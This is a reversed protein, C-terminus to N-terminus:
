YSELIPSVENGSASRNFFALFMLNVFIAHLNKKGHGFNHEFEYGQNKLTNFTENEIHWRTRAVRVFFEINSDHLTQDTIWSMHIKKETLERGKGVWQITEWFEVFKVTLHLDQHNLLIGHTFRYHRTREKKVKDGIIEVKEFHQMQGQSELQDLLSFLKEHSGPKAALIFNMQYLHLLKILPQTAHLADTLLLVKLKPHEERFDHLLRKIASRECDNKNNGDQKQISTPCLPIVQKQDPHVFVGVLEQHYYSKEDESKHKKELCNDCKVSTLIFYVQATM